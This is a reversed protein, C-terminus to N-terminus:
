TIVVKRLGSKTVNVIWVWKHNTDITTSGKAAKMKLHRMIRQNYKKLRLFRYSKFKFKMTLNYSIGPFLEVFILGVYQHDSGRGCTYRLPM